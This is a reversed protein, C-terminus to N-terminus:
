RVEKKKRPKYDAWREWAVTIDREQRDKTGGGVLIVM